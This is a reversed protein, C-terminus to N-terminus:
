QKQKNDNNNVTVTLSPKKDPLEHDLSTGYSVDVHRLVLDGTHVLPEPKHLKPALVVRFIGNLYKHCVDTKIERKRTDDETEYRQSGEQRLIGPM